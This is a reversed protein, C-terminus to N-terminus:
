DIEEITENSQEPQPPTETNGNQGGMNKMMEAMMSPDMNSMDPM